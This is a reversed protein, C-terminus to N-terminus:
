RSTGQPVGQRMQRALEASLAVGSLTILGFWLVGQPPNAGLDVLAPLLAPGIFSGINRGMMLTGFSAPGARGQEIHHPLHFLCAPAIGAAIGYVLLALIAPVGALLPCLFWVLAQLVLAASLSALLPVGRGLFWGTLVNFILVLVVPLLYVGTGARLDLGFRIAAYSPLWTAFAMFQISWVLFIGAALLHRFGVGQECGTSGRGSHSRSGDSLGMARVGPALLASALAFGLGLIWNFEWDPVMVTSLGGVIQGLPVWGAILGTVLALDQPRAARAAVMPGVIASIAFALGELGRAALFLVWSEPRWLAILGGALFLAAAGPLARAMGARDLWQGLPASLAAGVLAYISMYLAAIGPSVPYHALYDPLVPPLKFLQYAAISSIALGCLVGRWSTEAAPGSM